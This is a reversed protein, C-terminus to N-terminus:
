RRFIHLLKLALCALCRGGKLTETERKCKPCFSKM